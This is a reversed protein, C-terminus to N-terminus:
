PRVELLRYARRSVLRTVTCGETGLWRALSDAGLHKQVVFYAVGGEALRGLWRTLLAHLAPKGIRIPPNGYILDFMVDAPVDDPAGVRVRGAVGARIANATCLARARENSDVAWVLANPARCALTIAIPGYGCGLDLITRRAADPMPAELLLMKTGADVGEASFVGRDTTLRLTVDPLALEVEHPRSPAAPDADFYHGSTPEAM